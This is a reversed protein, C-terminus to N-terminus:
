TSHCRRTAVETSLKQILIFQTLHCMRWRLVNQVVYIFQTLQWTVCHAWSTAREMEFANSGFFQLLRPMIHNLSKLEATRCTDTSSSESAASTACITTLRRAYLNLMITWLWINTFFSVWIESQSLHGFSPVTLRCAYTLWFIIPVHLLLLFNLKTKTSNWNTQLCGNRLMRSVGQCNSFQVNRMGPFWQIVRWCLRYTMPTCIITLMINVFFTVCLHVYMSFSQPGIVSGLFEVFSHCLTLTPEM